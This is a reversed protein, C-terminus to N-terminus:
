VHLDGDDSDETEIGDGEDVLLRRGELRQLRTSFPTMGPSHLDFSALSLRVPSGLDSPHSDRCPTQLSHPDCDTVGFRPRNGSLPFLAGSKIKEVKSGTVNSISSNKGDLSGSTTASKRTRRPPVNEKLESAEDDKSLALEPHLPAAPLIVAQPDRYVDFGPYHISQRDLSSLPERPVSTPTSAIDSPRSPSAFWDEMDMDSQFPFTAPIPSSFRKTVRPTLEPSPALLPCNHGSSLTANLLLLLSFLSHVSLDHKKGAPTEPVGFDLKRAPSGPGRVSDGVRSTSLPRTHTSISTKLFKEPSFVGDQVLVRRKAPTYLSPATPSLHRKASSKFPSWELNPPLFRELPLECLAHRPM